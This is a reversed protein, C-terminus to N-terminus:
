KVLLMRRVSQYEGATMRYLYVGSSVQMGDDDRGDWVVSHVGDGFERSGDLLTRVLQGRINYIEMLVPVNGFESNRIGFEIRTEPNFPNPFNCLCIM